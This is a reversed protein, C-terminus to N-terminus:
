RVRVSRVIRKVMGQADRVVCLSPKANAAKHYGWLKPKHAKAPATAVTNFQKCQLPLGNARKAVSGLSKTYKTGQM